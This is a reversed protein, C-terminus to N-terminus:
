TIITKTLKLCPMVAIIRNKKKDNYENNYFFMVSIGTIGMALGTGFFGWGFGKYLKSQKEMDQTIQKYNKYKEYDDNVTNSQESATSIEQTSKVNDESTDQAM